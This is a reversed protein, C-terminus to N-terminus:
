SLSVISLDADSSMYCLLGGSICIGEIEDLLVRGNETGDLKCRYLANGYGVGMETEGDYNTYYLYEGDTNLWRTYNSNLQVNDSYDNLNVHYLYREDPGYCYYLYGDNVLLDYVGGIILENLSSGDLNCNCLVRKEGIRDFFLGYETVQM